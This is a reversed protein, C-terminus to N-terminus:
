PVGHPSSTSVERTPIASSSRSIASSRLSIAASLRDRWAVGLAFLAQTDNRREWQGPVPAWNGAEVAELESADEVEVPPHDCGAMPAIVRDVEAGIYGYEGGEASAGFPRFDAYLFAGRKSQLLPREGQDTLM